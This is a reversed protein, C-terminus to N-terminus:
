SSLIKKFQHNSSNYSFCGTDTMIGAFLCTAIDNDILSEYGLEHILLYVLEATSSVTTDHYMVQAFDKPDPHHDILIKLAKSLNVPKNMQKIRDLDNFDMCLIVDADDIAQLAQKSKKKFVIISTSEPMWKLFDPFLNPTVIKVQHNKKELIRSLGLSSGIADGDPNVHTVIVIKKSKENFAKKIEDINRTERLEKRQKFIPKCNILYVAKM